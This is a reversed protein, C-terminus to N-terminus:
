SPEGTGQNRRGVWWGILTPVLIALYFSDGLRLGLVRGLATGALVLTILAFLGLWHQRQM